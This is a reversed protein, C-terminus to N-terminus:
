PTEGNHSKYSRLMTNVAEHGGTQGYTLQTIIGGAAVWASVEPELSSKVITPPSQYDQALGERIESITHQHYIDFDELRTTISDM